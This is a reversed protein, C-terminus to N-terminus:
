RGVHVSYAKKKLRSDINFILFENIVGPGNKVRGGDSWTWRKIIWWIEVVNERLAMYSIYASVGNM